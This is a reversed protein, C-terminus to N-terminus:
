AYLGRRDPPRRDEPHFRGTKLQEVLEAECRIPGEFVTACSGIQEPRHADSGGIERLGLTEAVARSFDAEEQCGWGNSVELGDVLRLVRRSAAEEVTLTPRTNRMVPRTIETRFPHAAFMVGGKALVHARIEELTFLSFPIEEVGYILLDGHETTLEVGELLLFDYKRGLGDIVGTKRNGHETICIGDLGAKKAWAVLEEYEITSDRSGIRTHVHLDLTM